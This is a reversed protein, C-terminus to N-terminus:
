FYNSGTINALENRRPAYITALCILFKDRENGRARVRAVIRDIQERTFHPPSKLLDPAQSHIRRDKYPWHLALAEWWAKLATRHFSRSGPALDTLSALYGNLEEIMFDPDFDTFHMYRRAVSMFGTITTQACGRAVLDNKFRALPSEQKLWKNFEREWVDVTQLEEKLQAAKEANDIIISERSLDDVYSDEIDERLRRFFAVIGEEQFLSGVEGKLKEPQARELERRMFRFLHVSLEQGRDTM